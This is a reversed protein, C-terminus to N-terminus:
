RAQGQELLTVNQERLDGWAHFISFPREHPLQWCAVGKPASFKMHKPCPVLDITLKQIVGREIRNVPSVGCLVHDSCSPLLTHRRAKQLIGPQKERRQGLLLADCRIQIRTTRRNVRRHDGFAALEFGKVAKATRDDAPRHCLPQIQVRRHIRRLQIPNRFHRSVPPDLLDFTQASQNATLEGVSRSIVRGEVIARIWEDLGTVDRGGPFVDSCMGLREILKPQDRALLERSAREDHGDCGVDTINGDKIEFGTERVAHYPHNGAVCGVEVEQIVEHPGHPADHQTGGNLAGLEVQVVDADPRVESRDWRELLLSGDGFVQIRFLM